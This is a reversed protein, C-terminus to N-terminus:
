MSEAPIFFSVMFLVYKLIGVLLIILIFFIVDFDDISTEWFMAGGLEKSVIYNAKDKASNITDYGAWQKDKYAYPGITTNDM